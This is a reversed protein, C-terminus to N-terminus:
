EGGNGHGSGGDDGNPPIKVTDLGESHTLWVRYMSLFDDFRLCVVQERGTEKIVAVPVKYPGRHLAEDRVAQQLAQYYNARQHNKCEVWIGPAEVDAVEGSTRAQGLGRKVVLGLVETIRAAVEREYVQGKRRRGRGSLAM